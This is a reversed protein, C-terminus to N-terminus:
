RELSDRIRVALYESFYGRYKEQLDPRRWDRGHVTGRCNRQGCECEMVEDSDDFLAYDTTLEEGAEIDRMAILVVNGAFGLNPECSHNLFLMVAEYEDDSLAVLHLESTIQVESGILHESLTKLQGTTVVHGGKVAVVEGRPIAKRAILGRGAVTSPAGKEAKPTIWSAVTQAM